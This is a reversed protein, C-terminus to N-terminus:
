AGHRPEADKPVNVAALENGSVGFLAALAILLQNVGEAEIFGWVGAILILASLLHYVTKRTKRNKIINDM